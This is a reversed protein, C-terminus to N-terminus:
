EIGHLCQLSASCAEEVAERKCVCIVPLVRRHSSACLHSTQKLNKFGLSYEQKCIKQVAYRHHLKEQELACSLNTVAVKEEKQSFFSFSFFCFSSYHYYRGLKSHM